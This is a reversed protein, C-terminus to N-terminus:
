AKINYVMLVEGHRLYLKGDKIFPHAWHPGTGNTVKFTSIVDWKVPNPKILGVTGTKEEYVYFLDDAGVLAGKNIWDTEYQLEGTDWKLCVWKGKGNSIWNSGYIYDGAVLVGHHHNDLVNNTWKESVSTGSPDMKLMVAPYDYGMSLFIEDNKFVPTNTWILGPQDKWLENKYYKYNWAVKGSEPNLAILNTATVALIFRFNKYEYITPSAYARQGGVSESKWILKGTMKDFAVVSTEKGGPTCIVKDDVILPTESVGWMHWEAKFDKDVDVAWREKGTNADICVLRGMGGVVYVRDGEITPTSRTEPFSQYWSHGYPVQWKIKGQFDVATLYDLTDIMGTVYITQNAVVPSSYGKGLKEVKLVMEPGNAPWTKMLGSAKFYGDRKEGRWQVVQGFSSIAFSLILLVFFYKRM